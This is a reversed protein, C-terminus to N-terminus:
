WTRVFGTNYKFVFSLTLNLLFLHLKASAHVISFPPSFSIAKFCWLSGM